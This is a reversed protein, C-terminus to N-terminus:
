AEPGSSEDERVLIGTIEGIYATHYDKGPYVKADLTADHFREPKIADSYLKRCLVVRTAEQFYVSEGDMVPHLGSETVKDRDRGSVSGLFSLAERCADPFFSLTFTDSAELLDHTFRTHRVYITAVPKSWLTGMGGWSATMANIRDGAKASILCWEKDFVTLPHVLLAAPPISQLMAVEKMKM